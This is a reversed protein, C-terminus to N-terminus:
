MEAEAKRKVRMYVAPNPGSAEKIPEILGEAVLQKLVGRLSDLKIKGGAVM